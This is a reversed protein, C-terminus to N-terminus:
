SDPRHAGRMQKRCVLLAEIQKLKPMGVQELWSYYSSEVRQLTNTATIQIEDLHKKFDVRDDQSRSEFKRLRAELKWTDKKVTGSDMQAIGQLFEEFDIGNNDADASLILDRVGHLDIGLTQLERSHSEEIALILQEVEATDLSNNHNADYQCFSQAIYKMLQFRKEAIIMRKDEDAQKSLETLSDIFIATLLNLLGVSSLGLWFLFFFWVWPNEEGLSRSADMWNDHTMYQLLTIAAYPLSKFNEASARTDENELLATSTGIMGWALIAFVYLLLVLLVGVWFVNRLAMLWATVLLNLRESFSILRLVRTVRLMRLASLASSGTGLGAVRVAAEILSMGVVVADFINWNDSWFVVCGIATHKLLIELTFLVVFTTEVTAWMTEHSVDHDDAQIGIIVGNLMVLSLFFFKAYDHEVYTLLRWHYWALKQQWSSKETIRRPEAELLDQVTIPRARFGTAHKFAHYAVRSQALKRGIQGRRLAQIKVAAEDETHMLEKFKDYGVLWEELTVKGDGSADINDFLKHAERKGLGQQGVHECLEAKSLVGDSDIDM